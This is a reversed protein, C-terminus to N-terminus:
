SRLARIAQVDAAILHNIREELVAISMPSVTFFDRSLIYAGQSTDVWVLTEKERSWGWKRAHQWHSQITGIQRVQADLKPFIEHKVADRVLIQESPDYGSDAYSQPMTVGPLVARAIAGPKGFSLARAVAGGVEYASALRYITVTDETEHQLALCGLQDRRAAVIRSMRQANGAYSAVRIDSAGLLIEIESHYAALDGENFRQLVTHEYKNYDERLSFKQGQTFRLPYPLTDQGRNRNIISLALLDIKCLKEM